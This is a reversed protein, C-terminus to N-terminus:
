RHRQGRELGETQQRNQLLLPHHSIQRNGTLYNINDRHYSTRKEEHPNLLAACGACMTKGGVNKFIMRAAGCKGCRGAIITVAVSGLLLLASM